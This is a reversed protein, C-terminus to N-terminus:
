PLENFLGAEVLLKQGFPFFDQLVLPEFRLSQAVIYTEFAGQEIPNALMAFAPAGGTVLM